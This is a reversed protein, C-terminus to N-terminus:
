SLRPTAPWFLCLIVDTKPVHPPGYAYVAKPHTHGQGAWRSIEGLWSTGGVAVEPHTEWRGLPQPFGTGHSM